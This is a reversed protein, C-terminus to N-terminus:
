PIGYNITCTPQLNGCNNGSDVIGIALLNISTQVAVNQSTVTCSTNPNTHTCTVGTSVGSNSYLTYTATCSSDNAQSCTMGTIHADTDSWLFDVDTYTTSCNTGDWWYRVSTQSCASQASAATIVLTTARPTPQIGLAFRRPGVASTPPALIAGVLVLAALIFGVSAAREGGDMKRWTTVM